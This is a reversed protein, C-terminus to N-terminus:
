HYSNLFAPPSVSYRNLISTFNTYIKKLIWDKWKIKSSLIPRTITHSPSSRRLDTVALQRILSERHIALAAPVSVGITQIRAPAPSCKGREPLAIFHWAMKKLMKRTTWPLRGTIVFVRTILTICNVKLTNWHRQVLRCLDSSYMSISTRERRPPWGEGYSGNVM